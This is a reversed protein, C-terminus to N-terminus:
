AVPAGLLSRGRRAVAVLGLADATVVAEALLGRARPVDDGEGRALLAEAWALQTRAVLPRAGMAANMALADRFHREAQATDGRAAALMGLLRSASGNCTTARGVVVNRGAYPLLSAYLEGAREADGLRACVEALLTVAILWNADRPLDALGGVAGVAERAEDERGLELLLLALGCRWAPVAPYLAILGRVAEEV